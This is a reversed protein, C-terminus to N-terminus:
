FATGTKSRGDTTSGESSHPCFSYEGGLSSINNAISYLGLESVNTNVLCVGSIKM